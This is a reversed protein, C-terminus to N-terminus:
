LIAGPVSEVNGAAKSAAFNRLAYQHNYRAIEALRDKHRLLPFIAEYFDNASKCEILYGMQPTEFFDVIRVLPRTIVPLGFAIEELVSAPM